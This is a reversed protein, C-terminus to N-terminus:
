RLLVVRGLGSTGAATRLFYTGAPVERGAADRGDWTLRTIAEGEARLPMTWVRAGTVSYLSVETAESAALVFSVDNRFPNPSPPLVLQVMPGDISTPNTIHLTVRLSDNATRTDGAKVTYALFTYDGPAAPSWGASFEISKREVFALDTSIVGNVPGELHVEVGTLDNLGFNSVQVDIPIPGGLPWQIVDGDHLGVFRLVGADVTAPTGVFRDVGFKTLYCSVWSMDETPPSQTTAQIGGDDDVDYSLLKRTLKEAHDLWRADGTVDYMAAHANLYAVNWSNDWDFSDNPVDYWVQFTDVMAGYDHIWQQGAAPNDRFTSNCLGWVMTGSSMAWTELSLNVSPNGAIFNTVSQALSLAGSKWGANNREEGYRYLNGVAWGEVFANLKQNQNIFLAHNVIWDACTSGYTLFANSGTAARYASEATLGWACNHVRYYGTTGGEENWAPFNQCYTWADAINQLYTTRGTLATYRSWVWIAELTNDTQIVGGLAGSEAEIMGGFNPGPNKEQWTDMFAALQAFEFLYNVRDTPWVVTDTLPGTVNPQNLLDSDPLPQTAHAAGAAFLLAGAAAGLARGFWGSGWRSAVPSFPSRGGRGAANSRRTSIPMM